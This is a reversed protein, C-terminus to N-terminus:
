RARSCRCSSRHSRRRRLGHRVHAEAATLRGAPRFRVGARRALAGHRRGPGSRQGPDGGRAEARDRSRYLRRPRAGHPQDVVPRARRVGRRLRDRLRGERHAQRGPPRRHHAAVAMPRVRGPRGRRHRRHPGANRSPLDRPKLRQFTDFAVDRLRNLEAPDLARILLANLLVLMAVIWPARVNSRGFLWSM